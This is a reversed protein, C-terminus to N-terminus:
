QVGQISVGAIKGASFSQVVLRVGDPTPGTVVKGPGAHWSPSDAWRARRPDWWRTGAQVSWSANTAFPVTVVYRAEGCAARASLYATEPTPLVLRSAAWGLLLGAALVGADRRALGLRM